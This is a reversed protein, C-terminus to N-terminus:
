RRGGSNGLRSGGEEERGGERARQKGGAERAAESGKGGEQEGEGMRTREGETQSKEKDAAQTSRLEEANRKTSIM